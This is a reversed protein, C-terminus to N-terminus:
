KSSLKERKQLHDVCSLLREAAVCAPFTEAVRAIQVSVLTDVRSLLREAAVGAAAAKVLAVTQFGVLLYVGSLFLEHTVLTPLAEGVQPVQLVVLAEVDSAPRHPSVQGPPLTSPTLTRCRLSQIIRSSNATFTTKTIM